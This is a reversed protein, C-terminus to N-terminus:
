PLLMERAKSDLHVFLASIFARSQSLALDVKKKWEM